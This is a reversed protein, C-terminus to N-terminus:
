GIELQDEVIGQFRVFFACLVVKEVMREGGLEFVAIRGALNESDKV